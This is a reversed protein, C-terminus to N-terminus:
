FQYLILESSIGPCEKKKRKKRIIILWSLSAFHGFDRPLPLGAFGRSNLGGKGETMKLESINQMYKLKEIEKVGKNLGCCALVSNATM